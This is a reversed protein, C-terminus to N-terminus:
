QKKAKIVLPPDKKYNEPDKIVKYVYVGIVINMYIVVPIVPYAVKELESLHDADKFYFNSLGVVLLPVVVILFTALLFDNVVKISAFPLGM